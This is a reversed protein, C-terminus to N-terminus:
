PGPAPAVIEIEGEDLMAGHHAICFYPVVAGVPATEPITIIRDGLFVGTDFSIGQVSGPVFSGPTATSTVSHVFDDFNRVLVASNPPVALHQPSYTYNLITIVYPNINATEVPTTGLPHCGGALLCLAALPAAPRMVPGYRMAPSDAEHGHGGAM